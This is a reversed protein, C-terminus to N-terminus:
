QLLDQLTLSNLTKVTRDAQTFVEHEWLWPDPVAVCKMGAAKVSRVGNPSDEIGVCQQPPINLARAAALYIDPAPKNKEVHDGSFVADFYSFLNFRTFVSLINKSTSGSALACPIRAARVESLLREAGDILQLQEAYMRDMPLLVDHQVRELPWEQPDLHCAERLVTSWEINNTGMTRARMAPTYEVGFQACFETMMHKWVEESNVLVGDLDFIIAKKM